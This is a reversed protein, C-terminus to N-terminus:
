ARTRTRVEQKEMRILTLAWLRRFKGRYLYTGVPLMQASDVWDEAVSIHPTPFSDDVSLDEAATM